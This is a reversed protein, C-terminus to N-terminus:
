EKWLSLDLGTIENCNVATSGTPDLAFVDKPVRNFDGAECLVKALKIKDISDRQEPTFVADNKYFFRDGDRLRKLQDAYVCSFTPGIISGQEPEEILGGVYFDIDDVSKYLESVRKKVTEDTVESITFQTLTATANYLIKGPWDDFSTLKKLGCMNRYANYNRLGVDRGRQINLSAMDSSGGFLFETMSTTIRGPKRTPAVLLGRLILTVGRSQLVASSGAGQIVSYSGVQQFNDNVFLYNEQILGHLRAAGASFELSIGPDTGAKFGTYPGILGSSQGLM